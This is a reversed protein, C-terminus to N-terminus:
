VNYTKLRGGVFPALFLKNHGLIAQRQMLAFKWDKLYKCLNIKAFHSNPLRCKFKANQM